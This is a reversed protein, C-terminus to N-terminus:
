QTLSDTEQAQFALSKDEILAFASVASALSLLAAILMVWRYGTVFSHDIARELALHIEESLGSPIEAAALKTKQTQVAQRVEPQLDIGALRSDLSSSFTHLVIVGLGAISILWGVRSIANNIGSALGALRLEVSSMVTTTLPAICVAMGLGLITIGPFFTSWYHGGVGPLALLIYGIAAILPGVIL